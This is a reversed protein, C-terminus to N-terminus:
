SAQPSVEVHGSMLINLADDEIEEMMAFDADGIKESAAM